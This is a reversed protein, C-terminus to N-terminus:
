VIWSPILSLRRTPTPTPPPCLAGRGGGSGAASSLPPYRGMSPGEAKGRVVLRGKVLGPWIPPHGAM